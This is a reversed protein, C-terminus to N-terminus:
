KKTHKKNNGGKKGNDVLISGFEEVLQDDTLAPGTTNTPAHVGSPVAATKAAANAEAKRRLREKIINMRVSQEMGAAKAGEMNGEFSFAKRMSDMMEVFAPNESFEKMMEEAEAALEQPKFEGKQFKEQLRKMIRKMAGQLKEPNRMTSNMIVEFAKSPDTECQKITEADLGFEEPKLERVIEEALKVLRGNRLKEPFPPLRGGDSGFLETLRQTFTDFMGRDMKGRWQNMFADALGKFMDSDFGDTGGDRMMVSFSMIGVFQNIAKKTGESSSAWMADNIYVGPLVMGPAKTSDRSPNGATPMVLKKYLDERQEETAELSAKVSESLEPFVEQLSAAFENYKDHFITDLRESM